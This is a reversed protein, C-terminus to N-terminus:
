ARTFSGSGHTPPYPTQHTLTLTPADVDMPQGTNFVLLVLSDMNVDSM